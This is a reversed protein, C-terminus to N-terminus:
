LLMQYAGLLSCRNRHDQLGPFRSFNMMKRCKQTITGTRDVRVQCLIRYLLQYVLMHKVFIIVSRDIIVVVRDHGTDYLDRGLHTNGRDLRILSGFDKFRDTDVLIHNVFIKCIGHATDSSDCQFIDLVIYVCQM